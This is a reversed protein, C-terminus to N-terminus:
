GYAAGTILAEARSMKADPSVPTGDEKDFSIIFMPNQESGAPKVEIEKERTPNIKASNKGGEIRHTIKEGGGLQETAEITLKTPKKKNGSEGSDYGASFEGVLTVKIGGFWGILEGIRFYYKGHFSVKSEAVGGGGAGFGAIRVEGWMGGNLEASAEATLFLDVCVDKDNFIETDQFQIGGGFSAGFSLYLYGVLRGKIISPKGKLAELRDNRDVTSCVEDFLNMASMGTGAVVGAGLTVAGSVKLQTALIEWIDVALSCGILPKCQISGSRKIMKGYHSSQLEATFDAVLKPPHINVAIPISASSGFKKTKTVIKLVRTITNLWPFKEELNDVAQEITLKGDNYILEYKGKFNLKHQFDFSLEGELKHSYPPLSVIEIRKRVEVYSGTICEYVDLYRLNMPFKELRSLIMFQLGHEWVFELIDVSLPKSSYEIIIKFLNNPDEGEKPHLPTITDNVLSGYIEKDKDFNLHNLTGVKKLITQKSEGPISPVLTTPTPNFSATETLEKSTTGTYKDDLKVYETLMVKICESHGYQCEGEVEYRFTFDDKTNKSQQAVYVVRDPLKKGKVNNLFFKSTDSPPEPLYFNMGWKEVKQANERMFRESPNSAGKTEVEIEILCKEISEKCTGTPCDPDPNSNNTPTYSEQNNNESAPISAQSSNESIPSPVPKQTPKTLTDYLHNEYVLMGNKHVIQDGVNIANIDSLGNINYLMNLPINTRQSISTLTDGAEIKHIIINDSM